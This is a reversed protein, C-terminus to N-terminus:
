GILIWLCNIWSAWDVHMGIYSTNDASSLSWWHVVPTSLTHFLTRHMGEFSSSLPLHSDAPSTQSVALSLINLHTYKLQVFRSNTLPSRSSKTLTSFRILNIVKPYRSWRQLSTTHALYLIKNLTRVVLCWSPWTNPSGCLNAILWVFHHSIIQSRQRKPFSRLPFHASKPPEAHWAHLSRLADPKIASTLLRCRTCSSKPGLFTRGCM